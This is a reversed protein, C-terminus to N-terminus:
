KFDAPSALTNYSKHIKENVVPSNFYTLLLSNIEMCFLFMFKLLKWLFCIKKCKLATKNETSKWLAKM